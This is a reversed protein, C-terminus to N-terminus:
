ESINLIKLGRRPKQSILEKTSESHQKGLFTPTREKLAKIKKARTEERNWSEKQSKSMKVKSSKKHKRGFMSNKEGLQTGKRADSLAKCTKKRFEQDAWLRKANDSLKKRTEESVDRPTANERGDSLQKLTRERFEQDDQWKKKLTESIKRKTEESVKPM